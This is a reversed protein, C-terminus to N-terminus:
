VLSFAHGGHEILILDYLQPVTIIMILAIISYYIIYIYLDYLPCSKHVRNDASETLDNLPNTTTNIM